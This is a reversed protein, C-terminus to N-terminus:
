ASVTATSPEARAISFRLGLAGLVAQLTKFEPNGQESLAKYLSERGMETAQALQTMGGRAKTVNRLAVLFTEMGGDELAYELYLAVADQSQLDRALIENFDKLPM